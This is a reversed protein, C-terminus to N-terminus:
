AGDTQSFSHIVKFNSGDADVSFVFGLNNAGGGFASGYIKSGSVAVANPLCDGTPSELPSFSYIVKFGSGDLNISYITGISNAGGQRTTGYVTSEALIVGKSPDYGDAVAFSHLVKFGSGDTSITFIAGTSNTTTGYLTTGSVVLGGEPYSADSGGSFSHLTQFGSGDSNVSFVSGFGDDGGVRTTGYLKSGSVTVRVEGVGFVPQVTLFASGDTGLSFVTGPNSTTGFLTSGSLALGYEPRTGEGFAFSHIISFTSGKVFPSTALLCAILALLLRTPKMPYPKHFAQM